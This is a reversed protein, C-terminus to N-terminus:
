CRARLTDVCIRALTKSAKAVVEKAERIDYCLPKECYVQKGAELEAMSLYHHTHEPTAIVVYDIEPDALVDRYDTSARAKGGADAICDRYALAREPNVDCAVGLAINDEGALAILTGLHNGGMGGCGIVGARLRDNAGITRACSKASLSAAGAAAALTGTHIFSRRTLRTEPM